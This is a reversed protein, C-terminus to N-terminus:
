RINKQGHCFIRARWKPHAEFTKGFRDHGIQMPHAIQGPRSYDYGNIFLALKFHHAKLFFVTKQPETM